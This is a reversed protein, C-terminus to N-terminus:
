PKSDHPIGTSSLMIGCSVLLKFAEDVKMDIRKVQDHPFLLIFGFTPNPAGPVFVPIKGKLRPEKTDSLVEATLFGISMCAHNPYPVLVVQKFSTNKSSFLTHIVDQISKYIKNVFPIRHILNDAMSLITYMFFTRTLFGILIIFLVVIILIFFRILLLLGSGQNLNWNTMHNYNFIEEVLSIFPDTLLNVVFAVIAITLIAPLLIALGTLFYKKM